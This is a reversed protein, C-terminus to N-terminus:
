VHCCMHELVVNSPPEAIILFGCFPLVCVRLQKQSFCFSRGHDVM